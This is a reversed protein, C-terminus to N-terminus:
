GGSAAAIVLMPNAAVLNWPQSNLKRIRFDKRLGGKTRPPIGKRPGVFKIVSIATADYDRTNEVVRFVAGLYKKVEVYDGVAFPHRFMYDPYDDVMTM